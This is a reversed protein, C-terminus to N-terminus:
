QCGNGTLLFYDNNKSFSINLVESMMQLASQLSQDTFDATLSCHITNPNEVKITVKFKEELRKLITGLKENTFQMDYGTEKIVSTRSAPSIVGTTLAQNRYVAKQNPTLKASTTEGPTAVAVQGTLVIVEISDTSSRINFSTGTVSVTVDHCIIKFPHAPDKKVEFLGEGKLTAIRENNSQHFSLSAQQHLWVISGDALLVKEIPKQATVEFQQPIAPKDLVAWLVLMALAVSAAMAWYIRSNSKPTATPPRFNIVEDMNDLNATIKKFLDQEQEPSLKLDKTDEGKMMDLWAELKQKEHQAITGNLYQDLLQDFETKKM